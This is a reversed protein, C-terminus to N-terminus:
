GILDDLFQRFERNVIYGIPPCLFVVAWLLVRVLPNMTTDM